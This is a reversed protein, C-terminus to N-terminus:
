YKKLIIYLPLSRRLLWLWLQWSEEREMSHFIATLVVGWPFVLLPAAKIQNRFNNEGFFFGKQIQNEKM